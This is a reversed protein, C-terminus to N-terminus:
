AMLLALLAKQVHLRNEAQQWVASQGGYLVDGSIEEGIHAPLCHLVVADGAAAALLDADIGFGAFDQLRREREDEEGMSTWVDTYLVQAGAAAEHPDNTMAVSGGFACSAGLAGPGPEYGRPTACVVKAGLASCAVLLSACVNNGDGVYAVKIGSLDGFRERITLADALAQCPHEEDTLANIVPVAAHAALTELDAQSAWRVAIGDLYGSLIRATDELSEGRSLQLESTNLTVASGGLQAMAVAFSVRTRTSPRGFLLGLSRGQLLRHEIGNRQASKLQEALDLVLRLEYASWTTLTTLDRGALAQTTDALSHAAIRLRADNLATKVGSPGPTARPALREPAVFTGARVASAVEEHADRFAMGGAVLVEAADTARLLPDSVAAALREHNLELGDVLVGLAALAGRVDRRTQFLPAKDEQLDRDYALPLGKVVALLGTLRGIATGAKGRALEAVDPNLKQPMMSSGTSASGPLTVFGFESTCWLVIEEGIRSLHTFLVAAAYLYDLAFDRDAVADLSNRMPSPPLPLTLTSGALAGAGLPSPKAAAAAHEFRTRDRELMELWAHLHHGFTVPQARQLHTYGPLPTEAEREAVDLITETLGAIAATAEACADGVYLRAAAAVQDNRSRGAHIKRGVPGLLGEIASHVDEYEPLYAAGEDAITALRSEVEALEVDDLVGAAHLRQAHVATAACDYPLLEDDDARLFADVDPDLAVGTRAAWLTV